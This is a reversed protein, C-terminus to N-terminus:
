FLSHKKTAACQEEGHAALERPCSFFNLSAIPTCLSSFLRGFATDEHLVSAPDTSAAPLILYGFQNRPPYPPIVCPFLSSSSSHRAVSLFYSVPLIPPLSPNAHQLCHPSNPTGPVSLAPPIWHCIFCIFLVWWISYPKWSHQPTPFEDWLISFHLFKFCTCAILQAKMKSLFEHSPSSKSSATLVFPVLVTTPEQLIGPSPTSMMVHLM